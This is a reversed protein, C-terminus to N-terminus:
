TDPWRSEQPNAQTWTGALLEEVIDPAIERLPDLVFARETCHKHPIKLGALDVTRRGYVIIDLDIVRPGWRYTQTRGQSRELSKLERLLEIPPLTTRLEVMGNLFRPQETVGWPETMHASSAAIVRTGPMAALADITTAYNKELEGLNSGFAILVREEGSGSDPHQATKM